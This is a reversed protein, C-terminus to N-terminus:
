EPQSPSHSSMKNNNNGDNDIEEELCIGDINPLLFNQDQLRNTIKNDCEQLKEKVKDKRLNLDPVHQVMAPALVHGNCRCALNKPKCIALCFIGCAM